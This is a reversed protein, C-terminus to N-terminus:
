PGYFAVALIQLEKYDPLKRVVLGRRANHVEWDNAIDMKDLNSTGAAEIPM